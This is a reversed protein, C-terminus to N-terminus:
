FKNRFIQSTVSNEVVLRKSNLMPSVEPLKRNPNAMYLKAPELKYLDILQKQLKGQIDVIDKEFLNLIRRGSVDHQLYMQSQNLTRIQEVREVILRHVVIQPDTSHYQFHEVIGAASWPDSSSRVVTELGTIPDKRKAKALVKDLFTEYLQEGLTTLSGQAVNVFGDMVEKLFSNWKDRFVASPQGHSGFSDYVCAFCISDDQTEGCMEDLQKTWPDTVPYFHVIAEERSDRSRGSERSTNQLVRQRKEGEERGEEGEEERSYRKTRYMSQSPSSNLEEHEPSHTYEEYGAKNYREEEELYEPREGLFCQTCGKGLCIQCTSYSIPSSFSKTPTIAVFDSGEFNVVEHPSRSMDAYSPENSSEM